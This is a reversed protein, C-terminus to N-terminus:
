TPPACPAEPKKEAKRSLLDSQRAVRAALDVIIDQLKRLDGLFEAGLAAIQWRLQDNEAKANQWLLLTEQHAAQEDDLTADLADLETQYAKGHDDTITGKLHAIVSSVSPGQEDLIEYLMWNAHKIGEVLVDNKRALADRDGALLAANSRLRAALSELNERKWSRLDAPDAATTAAYEALMAHYEKAAQEHGTSQMTVSGGNQKKVWEDYADMEEKTPLIDDAPNDEPPM